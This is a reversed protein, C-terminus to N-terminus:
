GDITSLRRAPFDMWAQLKGLNVESQAMTQNKSTIKLM